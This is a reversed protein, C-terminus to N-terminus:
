FRATARVNASFRAPYLGVQSGDGGLFLMVGAFLSLTGPGRDSKSMWVTAAPYVILSGDDLNWIGTVRPTLYGGMEQGLYSLSLYHRRVNTQLYLYPANAVMDSWSSAEEESMTWPVQALEHPLAEELYATFARYTDYEERDYGPRHFWYEALWTAGNDFMRRTGVVVDPWLGCDGGGRCREMDFQGVQYPAARTDDDGQVEEVLWTPRGRQVLAELHVEFAGVYRSLAGGGYVRGRDEYAVLNIDSQFVNLYLRAALLGRGLDWTTPLGRADEQVTPRYLLTAGVQYFRTLDLTALYAGERLLTPDFPNFRPNIVDLPDWTFATGWTVRRKGVTLTVWDPLDVGAYCENIQLRQGAARM